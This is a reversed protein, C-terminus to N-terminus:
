RKITEVAYPMYRGDKQKWGVLILINSTFKKSVSYKPNHIKDVRGSEM